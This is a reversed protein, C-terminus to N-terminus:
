KKALHNNPLKIRLSEEDLKEPVRTFLEHHDETKEQM